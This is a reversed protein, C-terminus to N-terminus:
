RTFRCDAADEHPDYGIKQYIANSTPNALDTILVVHTAGADLAWQSVAASVASGYGHGRHEPPTYVPGVRSMGDTPKSAVAYSVPTGDVEWLLNAHGLAMSRRVSLAHDQAPMHGTDEGFGVRWGALLPVDDATALRATGAVDPTTLEGLRYLRLRFGHGEKVGTFRQWQKSFEAAAEVPGTVGAVPFELEHLLAVLEPAAGAPMASVVVPWPPTCYTAGVVVDDVGDEEFTVLLPPEVNPDPEALLDRLVTLAAANRIPDATYVPGALRWFAALDTHAVARM